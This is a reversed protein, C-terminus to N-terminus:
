KLTDENNGENINLIKLRVYSMQFNISEHSGQISLLAEKIEGLESHISKIHAFHTLTCKQVSARQDSWTIHTWVYM